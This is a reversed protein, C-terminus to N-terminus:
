FKLTLKLLPLDFESAEGPEETRHKLIKYECVQYGMKEMAKVIEMLRENRTKKKSEEM